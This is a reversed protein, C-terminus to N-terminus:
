FLISYKYILFLVFYKYIKESTSMNFLDCYIDIHCSIKFKYLVYMFCSDKIQVYIIIKLRSGQFNVNIHELLVNLILQLILNKKERKKECVSIIYKYIFLETKEKINM